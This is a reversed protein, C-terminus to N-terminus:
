IDWDYRVNTNIIWDWIVNRFTEYFFLTEKCYIRLLQGRQLSDKCFLTCYLMMRRETFLTEGTNAYKFLYDDVFCPSDDM